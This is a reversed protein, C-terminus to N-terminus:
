KFMFQYLQNGVSELSFKDEIHKRANMGIKKAYVPDSLFIYLQEVLAKKDDRKIMVGGNIEGMELLDPIGPADTAILPLGCAMGEVPAVAFGENRSPFVYVDAAQLWNYIEKRENIYFQIEKNFNKNLTM